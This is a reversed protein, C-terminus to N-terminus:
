NPRLWLGNGSRAPAPALQTVNLWFEGPRNTDDFMRFDPSLFDGLQLYKLAGKPDADSFEVVDAAYRLTFEYGYLDKVNQVELFLDAQGGDCSLRIVSSMLADTHWGTRRQPRRRDLRHPNRLLHDALFPTSRLQEQADPAKGGVQFALSLAAFKCVNFTRHSIASGSLLAM